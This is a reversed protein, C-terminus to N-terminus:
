RTPRLYRDAALRGIRRGHEIGERVAKRFHFGILIRSVGNEEAAETFTAYSRSAPAADGCRGGAPLTLSCTTFAIRDTAFFRRFM